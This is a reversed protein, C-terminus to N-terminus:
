PQESVLTKLMYELVEDYTRLQLLSKLQTLNDHTKTSIALTKTLTKSRM